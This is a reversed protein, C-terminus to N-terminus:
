PHDLALIAFATAADSMFRGVHTNPDRRKNLSRGVWAGTEQQNACLWALGKAVRPHERPLGALQLVHLTVGTAYGDPGPDPATGERRQSDDLSALSWGGNDQQKEFIRGVIRDRESATLLGEVRTS